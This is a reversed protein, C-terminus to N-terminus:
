SLPGTMQSAKYLHRDIKIVLAQAMWQILTQDTPYAPRWRYDRGRYMFLFFFTIELLLVCILFFLGVVLHSEEEALWRSDEESQRQQQRLKWELM